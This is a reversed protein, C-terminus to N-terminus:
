YNIRDIAWEGKTCIYQHPCMSCHTGSRAEITNSNAYGLFTKIYETNKLAKNKYGDRVKHHLGYKSKLIQIDKMYYPFNINKFKFRTNIDRSYSTNILNEKLTNTWQPFLNFFISEVRKDNRKSGSFLAALSTFIIQHHLESSYVPNFGLINSYFFKRPCFDLDLFAIPAIDNSWTIDNITTKEQELEEEIFDFYSIPNSDVLEEDVEYINKIINYISSKNDNNFIDEIYLINIKGDYNEFLTCLKYNLWENITNLWKNHIELAEKHIDSNLNSSNVVENLFMPNLSKSIDNLKDIREISRESLDILNIEKVDELIIGELTFISKIKTDTGDDKFNSNKVIASLLNRMEEFSMLEYEEGKFSLCDSINKFVEKNDIDDNNFSLKDWIDRLEKLHENIDLMDDHLLTNAIKKFKYIIDRLQKITIDYRDQNLYSFSRLPNMLYKKVRDKQVKSESLEDFKNKFEDLLELNDIRSLYDGITICGNFYEQLDILLTAARKGSIYKSGSKIEIWGSTICKFLDNFSIIFDDDKPILNYLNVLFNGEEYSFIDENIDMSDIVDKFSENLIDSSIALYHRKVKGDYTHKKELPYERLYSKFKSPNEFNKFVIDERFNNQITQGRLYRMFNSNFSRSELEYNIFMSKYLDSYSNCVESIERTFYIRFVIDFGSNELKKLTLYTRMDLDIDNYIYIKSINNLEGDINKFKNNFVRVKQALIDNNINEKFEELLEVIKEDRIFEIYISIIDKEKKTLIKNQEIVLSNIDEVGLESLYRIVYLINDIDKIYSIREKSSIDLKEIIDRLISKMRIIEITNNWKPYLIKNIDKFLVINNKSDNFLKHKVYQELTSSLFVHLENNIISLSKFYEKPESIFEVKM